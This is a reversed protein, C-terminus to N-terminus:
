NDLAITAVFLQREGNMRFPCLFGSLEEVPLDYINAHRLIIAFMEGQLIHTGQNGNGAVRNPAMPQYSQEAGARWHPLTENFALFTVNQFSRAFNALFHVEQFLKSYFM